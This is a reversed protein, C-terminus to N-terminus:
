YGVEKRKKNVAESAEQETNYVGLYYNIGKFHLRALWQNNHKSVGRYKSSSKKWGADKSINKQQSLIQLNKKQNDLGNKNIHDVVKDKIDWKHFNAIIHTIVKTKKNVNTRAYITNRSVLRYWKYEKLYEFDEDDVLIQLGCVTTLLKM